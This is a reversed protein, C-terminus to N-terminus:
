DTGLRIEETARTTKSVTLAERMLPVEIEREQFAEAVLGEPVGVCEVEVEERRLEVPVDQRETHVTKRLRVTGAEIERKGIELEEEHLRMEVHTPPVPLDSEETRYKDDSMVTGERM